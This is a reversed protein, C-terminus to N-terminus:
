KAADSAPLIWDRRWVGNNAAKTAAGSFKDRGSVSHADLKDTTKRNEPLGENRVRLPAEVKRRHKHLRTV